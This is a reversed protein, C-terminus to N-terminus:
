EQSFSYEHWDGVSQYGIDQYIHNATPNALDTFLFCFRYGQNLLSQSLAAVSASAYGRCRYEPPTYVMNLRVGNPTFSGSCAISVPIEDQWFYARGQQLIWDAWKQPDPAVEELAELSFAQYWSILLEQDEQTAPRLYGTSSPIQQVKELQFTRLEVKLKYTQKTLSHWALAFKEAASIPAILGPLSPFALYLDQTLLQIATFDEIQSLVLNRPPTRMAVALINADDEVTALYPTQEFREPNHILGYCLGLQMNYLAEQNLLYEKVRQHFQNADTFRQVKM